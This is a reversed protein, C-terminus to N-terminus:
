GLAEGAGFEEVAAGGICGGALAVAGFEPGAASATEAIGSESVVSLGEICGMGAAVLTEATKEGSSFADSIDDGLSSFFGHGTPDTYDIPDGSAFAYQNITGPNAISGVVSDPQTFRYNSPDYYRAGLHYYNDGEIDQYAGDFRFPISSALSTLTNTVAGYPTYHFDGVDNGSGDMLAVVSNNRDSLGYTIIQAGGGAPTYRGDILNGQPDRTIYTTGTANSYATIGLPGEDVADNLTSSYARTRLDNGQDDYTM